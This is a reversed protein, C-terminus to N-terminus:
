ETELCIMREIETLPKQYFSQSLFEKEREEHKGQERNEFSDTMKNMIGKEKGAKTYCM